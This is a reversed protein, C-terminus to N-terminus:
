FGSIKKKEAKKAAPKATTKSSKPISVQGSKFTIDPNATVIRTNFARPQLKFNSEDQLTVDFYPEVKTKGGGSIYKVTKIASSKGESGKMDFGAFQNTVDTGTFNVMGGEEAAVSPTEDMVSKIIVSPHFETIETAKGGAARREKQAQITARDKVRNYENEAASKDITEAQQKKRYFTLGFVMEPTVDSIGTINPFYEKIENLRRISEPSGNNVGEKLLEYDAKIANALKANSSAIKPLVEITTKPDRGSFKTVREGYLTNGNIDKMVAVPERKTDIDKIRADSLDLTKNIADFDIESAVLPYNYASSIKSTDIQSIPSTNLLAVTGSIEEPVDYGKLRATKMYEAYEKQFGAAQVSKAYIDNLGSLANDLQAKAAALQETPAGGINLKTFATASQKFQNYAKTFDPIDMQRLKGPQYSKLFENTSQEAFLDLQRKRQAAMELGRNIGKSFGSVDVFSPRYTAM